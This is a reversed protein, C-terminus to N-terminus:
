SKLRILQLVFQSAITKIGSVSFHQFLQLQYSYYSSILLLLIIPAHYYKKSSQYIEQGVTRKQITKKKTKEARQDIKKKINEEPLKDEGEHAITHQTIAPQIIVTEQKDFQATSKNTIVSDVDVPKNQDTLSPLEKTEEAFISDSYTDTTNQKTLSIAIENQNVTGKISERPNTITEKQTPSKNAESIIDSQNKITISNNEQQETHRPIENAKKLLWHLVYSQNRVQVFITHELLDFNKSTTKKQNISMFKLSLFIHEAKKAQEITELNYNLTTNMKISLVYCFYLAIVNVESLQNSNTARKQKVNKLKTVEQFFIEENIKAQKKWKSINELITNRLSLIKTNFWNFEKHKVYEAFYENKAQWHVFFPLFFTTSFDNCIKLFQNKTDEPIHSLYSRCSYNNRDHQKVLPLYEKTFLITIADTFLNIENKFKDTINTESLTFDKDDEICFIMEQITKTTSIKVINKQIDENWVRFYNNLQENLFSKAKTIVLNAKKKKNSQNNTINNIEEPFLKNLAENIASNLQEQDISFNAINQFIETQKIEEVENNDIASYSNNCCLFLFSFLSYYLM